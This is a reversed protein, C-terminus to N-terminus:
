CVLLFRPETSVDLGDSQLGDFNARYILSDKGIGEPMGDIFNVRPWRIQFKMASGLPDLMQFTFAHDSQDAVYTPFVSDARFYEAIQGRMTFASELAFRNALGSSNFGAARKTHTTVFNLETMGALAAADITGSVQTHNSLNNAVTVIPTGLPNAGASYNALASKFQITLKPFQNRRFDFTLSDIVVGSYSWNQGGPNYSLGIKFSPLAQLRIPRFTYQNLGGGLSTTSILEFFSALLTKVVANFGFEMEIKGTWFKSSFNSDTENRWVGIVTEKGNFNEDQKFKIKGVLAYITASSSANFTTEAQIVLTNAWGNFPTQM